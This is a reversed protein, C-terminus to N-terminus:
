KRLIPKNVGYFTWQKGFVFLLASLLVPCTCSEFFDPPKGYM